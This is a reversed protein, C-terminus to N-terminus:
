AQREVGGGVAKNVKTCKLLALFGTAVPALNCSYDGKDFQSDSQSPLLLVAM